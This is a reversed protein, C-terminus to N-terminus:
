KLTFEHLKLELISQIQGQECYRSGLIEDKSADIKEINCSLGALGDSSLTYSLHGEEFPPECVLGQPCPVGALSNFFEEIGEESVPVKREVKMGWACFVGPDQELGEETTKSPKPTHRKMEVCVGDIVAVRQLHCREVVAEDRLFVIACGRSSKKVSIVIPLMKSSVEKAINVESKSKVEEKLEVDSRSQMDSKSQVEEAPKVLCQSQTEKAPQEQCQNQMEKAPQKFARGALPRPVNSLFAPLGGSAQKKANGGMPALKSTEQNLEKAKGWMPALKTTEQTLEKAKGWMPGLKTTEQTLAM